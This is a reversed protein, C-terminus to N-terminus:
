QNESRKKVRVYYSESLYIAALPNHGTVRDKAALLTSLAEAYKLFLSDHGVCLGLLVNFDVGADNVVFAQFVPNCMSEFKGINVKERDQLGIEEKPVGGAKCCVSVINFGRGELIQSVIEAERALGACFVLGLKRYGMKEAFECIEIIRPKVPHITYPKSDRGMYCEAEQISANRAFDYVDKRHYEEGAHALLARKSLTPCGKASKGKGQEVMCVKEFMPGECKACQPEIKKKM